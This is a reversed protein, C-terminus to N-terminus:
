KSKRSLKKKNIKNQIDIAEKAKEILEKKSKTIDDQAEWGHVHFNKRLEPRDKLWSDKPKNDWTPHNSKVWMKQSPSTDTGLTPSDRLMQRLGFREMVQEMTTFGNDVLMMMINWENPDIPISVTPKEFNHLLKVPIKSAEEPEVEWLIALIRDYCQNEIIKEWLEQRPKIENNLFADVEERNANGGMNGAKGKSFMFPPINKFGAIGEIASNELAILGAIDGSNTDGKVVEINHTVSVDANGLNAINQNFDDLISQAKSWDKTPLEHRYINPTRWTRNAANEFDRAYIILLVKGLDSIAETDSIGYFDGFLELNKSNNIYITRNADLLSGNSSLGTVEVGVLEGNDFDVIPRRLLEPRILRFATPLVYKGNKNRLEPFMGIATRGQEQLFLDSDFILPDLDMSALYQDLWIKLQDPTMKKKLLPVMIPKQEWEKLKDEDLEENSRPVITRTSKQITLQQIIKSGRLVWPCEQMLVKFLERQEPLYPDVSPYIVLNKFPSLKKTTKNDDTRDLGRKTLPRINGKSSWEPIQAFRLPGATWSKTNLDLEYMNGGVSGVSPHIGNMSEIEKKTLKKVNGM